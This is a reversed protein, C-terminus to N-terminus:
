PNLLPEQLIISTRGRTIGFMSGRVDMNWYPAGLGTFAPVFVVGLSDKVKLAFEESQASSELIGLEDRLWQIVSGGTFVSGEVAYKRMVGVDSALTTIMGSDSQIFEDGTNVLLFCGTGYTNKMDGKEFCNQGFLSSQQDGSLAAIPITHGFCTTEGFVHGSPCVEPLMSKPIDFESLLREDWKMDRINFLMTRSANTSDTMHKKTFNYLLWSDVTGFLLDGNKARDYAGEVNDLIWKVKTASFYADVILGTNEKIYGFLEKRRKIEDCMSASRRCQWVIANYVPEGTYRDWVIATERQNTIGIACIEAASIGAEKIVDNIVSFSSEYVEKPDHEVWGANPYIQTLEKQKKHILNLDRDFLLAKSSTTGQDLSIVYKKM